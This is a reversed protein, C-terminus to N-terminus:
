KTDKTFKAPKAATSITEYRDIYLKHTRAKNRIESIKDSPFEMMSPERGMRYQHKVWSTFAEIRAKHKPKFRLGGSQIAISTFSKFNDKLEEDTKDICSQFSSDFLEDSITEAKEEDFGLALMSEAVEYPPNNEFAMMDIYIIIFM